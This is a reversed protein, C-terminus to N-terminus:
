AFSESWGSYNGTPHTINVKPTSTQTSVSRPPLSAGQPALPHGLGGRGYGYSLGAVTADTRYGALQQANRARRIDSDLNTEVLSRTFENQRQQYANQQQFLRGQLNIQQSLSRDLQNSEFGFRQNQMTNQFNQNKDQLYSQWNYMDTQMNRRFDHDSGQMNRSFDFYDHQMEKRYKMEAYSGIGQGIGSLMGGGLLLAAMGANAIINSEFEEPQYFYDSSGRSAPIVQNVVLLEPKFRLTAYLPADPPGRTYMVMNDPKRDGFDIRLVIVLSPKYYTKFYVDVINETVAESLATLFPRVTAINYSQRGRYTPKVSYQPADSIVVARLGAPMNTLNEDAYSDIQNIEPINIIIQAADSALVINHQPPLNIYLMYFKVSDKLFYYLDFRTPVYDIISGRTSNIITSTTNEKIFLKNLHPIDWWQQVEDIDTSYTANHFIAEPVSKGKQTSLFSRTVLPDYLKDKTIYLIILSQDPYYCMINGDSTYNFHNSPNEKCLDSGYYKYQSKLNVPNVNIMAQLDSINDGDLHLYKNSLGFLFSLSAQTMRDIM